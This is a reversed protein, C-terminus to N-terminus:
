NLTDRYRLTSKNMEERLNQLDNSYGLIVNKYHNLLNDYNRSELEDVRLKLM